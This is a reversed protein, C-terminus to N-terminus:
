MYKYEQYFRKLHIKTAHYITNNYPLYGSYEVDLKNTFLMRSISMVHICLTVTRKDNSNVNTQNRNM